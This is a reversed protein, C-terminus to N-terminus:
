SWRKEGLVGVKGKSALFISAHRCERTPNQHIAPAHSHCVYNLICRLGNNIMVWTKRRSRERKTKLGLFHVRRPVRQGASPRVKRRASAPCSPLTSSARQRRDNRRRWCSGTRGGDATLSLGTTGLPTENGCGQPEAATFDVYLTNRSARRNGEVRHYGTSAHVRVVFTQANDM